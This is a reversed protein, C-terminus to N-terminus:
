EFGNFKLTFKPLIAVAYILLDALPRPQSLKHTLKRGLGVRLGRIATGQRVFM